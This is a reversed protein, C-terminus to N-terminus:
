DLSTRLALAAAVSDGDQHDPTWPSARFSGSGTAVVRIESLDAAALGACVVRMHNRNDKEGEFFVAEIHPCDFGRGRLDQGLARLQNPRFKLKTEGEAQAQWALLVAVALVFAAKVRSPALRPQARERGPRGRDLAPGAM